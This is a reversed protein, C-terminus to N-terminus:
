WHLAYRYQSLWTSFQKCGAWHGELWELDGPHGIVHWFQKPQAQLPYEFCRQLDLCYRYDGHPQMCSVAKIRSGDIRSTCLASLEDRHDLYQGELSDMFIPLAERSALIEVNVEQEQLMGLSHDTVWYGFGFDLNINEWAYLRNSLTKGIEEFTQEALLHIM